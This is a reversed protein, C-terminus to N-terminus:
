HQEGAKYCIVSDAQSYQKGAELAFPHQMDVGGFWKYPRDNETRGECIEVAGQRLCRMLSIDDFGRAHGHLIYDAENELFLLKDLSQVFEDMKPCGDLQMWLHHNISDGTFLIREEKLLLLISGKTHGPIDYVALTKGGLDLLDGGKLPKFPPMSLGYKKCSEAFELINVFQAALENDAPNMYAEEFYINGFIHDPHGHTNVVVIPKDTIERVAKHLDNYGNMTDIVCVKEEGVVIYGSAEHAEDMLYIDPRLQTIFLQKTHNM